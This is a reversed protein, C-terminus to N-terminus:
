IQKSLLHQYFQIQGATTLKQAMNDVLDKAQRSSLVFNILATIINDEPEMVLKVSPLTKLQHLVQALTMLDGKAETPPYKGDLAALILTHETYIASHMVQLFNLQSMPTLCSLFTNLQNNYPLNAIILAFATVMDDVRHHFDFLEYAGIAQINWARLAQLAPLQRWLKNQM